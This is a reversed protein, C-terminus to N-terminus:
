SFTYRHVGARRTATLEALVGSEPLNLAYYGPFAIEEKHSFPADLGHRLADSPQTGASPIVLFQGGDTAGTGLLRTHSFGLVREDRYYYGSTNLARSGGSSVTDPGLRVMGFPLCAGPFENGCLYFLGGTGIFPNVHRGLLGPKTAPAVAPSEGRVFQPIAVAAGALCVLIRLRGTMLLMRRPKEM